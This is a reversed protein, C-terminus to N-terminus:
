FQQVLASSFNRSFFIGRFGHGVLKGEFDSFHNFKLVCAREAAFKNKMDSFFETLSIARFDHSFCNHFLNKYFSIKKEEDKEIKRICLNV